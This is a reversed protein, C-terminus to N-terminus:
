KKYNEKGLDKMIDDYFKNNIVEIADILKQKLTPHIDLDRAIELQDSYQKMHKNLLRVKQENQKLGLEDLMNTYETEIVQVMRKYELEIRQKGLDTTADLYNKFLELQAKVKQKVKEMIAQKEISHIKIKAIMGLEGKVLDIDKESPILKKGEMPTIGKESDNKDKKGINIKGWRDDNM